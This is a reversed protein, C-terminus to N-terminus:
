KGSSWTWARSWEQFERVKAENAKGWEASGGLEAQRWATYVFAPYHGKRHMEVFYPVYYTAAFGRPKKMSNEMTSALVAYKDVLAQFPTSKKGRETTDVAASLSMFVAVADFDGEDKKSDPSLSVTINFHNPQDGKTVGGTLIARLQSIAKKSRESGPELVLFRSYALVAPVRYDGDVYLSGLVYHSGPHSPDLTLAKEVTKRAEAPKGSRNLSLALNFHLLATDPFRKIAAEYTDIAEVRKGMEDLANGIMVYIRPLLASKFEAAQRATALANAYDKKEFYSFSLEHLSVVEDPSEALVQKYKAIAGDYDGADHLTVGEKILIRQADSPPSAERKPEPLEASQAPILLLLAAVCAFYLHRM